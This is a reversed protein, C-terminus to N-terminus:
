CVQEAGAWVIARAKGLRRKDVAWLWSTGTSDWAQICTRNGPDNTSAFEVYDHFADTELPM